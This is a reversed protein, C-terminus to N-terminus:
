RVIEKGTTHPVLPQGRMTFAADFVSVIVLQEKIHDQGEEVASLLVFDVTQLQEENGRAACCTHFPESSRM